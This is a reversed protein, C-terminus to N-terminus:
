EEVGIGYEYVMQGGKKATLAILGSISILFIIFVVRFCKSCKKKVLYLVPLSALAVWMTRLAFFKHQDLIPHNLNIKEAEWIGTRVAVPTILVAIIYIHLAAQHLGEKRIILSLVDLGLATIFLAIPFHVVMPHLYPPLEFM